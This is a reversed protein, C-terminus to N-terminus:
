KLLMKDLSLIEYKRVGCVVPTSYFRCGMIICSETGGSSILGSESIKLTLYCENGKILEKLNNFGFYKNDTYYDKIQGSGDSQLELKIDIKTREIYSQMLKLLKEM